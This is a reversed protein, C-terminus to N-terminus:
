LPVETAAERAAKEDAELQELGLLPDIMWRDLTYTALAPGGNPNIAQVTVRVALLGDLPAPQVEISYTFESISEAEFSEVPSPPIGQPSVMRDLLIESLKTQAIIRAVALHRAERSADTGTGAIQSLVAMAGGLIALALLIELLSFGPRSALRIRGHRAAPTPTEERLGSATWGPSLISM